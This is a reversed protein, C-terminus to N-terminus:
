PVLDSQPGVMKLYATREVERYVSYGYFKLVDSRFHEASSYGSPAEEWTKVIGLFSMGEQALLGLLYSVGLFIVFKLPNDSVYDIAEKLNGDYAYKASALLLGGAFLYTLDRLLFEEYVENLISRIGEGL